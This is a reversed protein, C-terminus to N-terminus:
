ATFEAVAIALPDRIGATFYDRYGFKQGRREPDRQETWAGTGLSAGDGGVEGMAMYLPRKNAAYFVAIDDPMDPMFFYDVSDVRGVPFAQAFAGEEPIGERVMPTRSEIAGFESKLDARVDEAVNAGALARIAGNGPHETITDRIPKAIAQTWSAGQALFIHDHGTATESGDRLPWTISQSDNAYVAAVQDSNQTAIDQTITNGNQDEATWAFNNSPDDNADGFAGSTLVDMLIKAVKQNWGLRPRAAREAAQQLNMGSYRFDKPRVIHTRGAMEFGPPAVIHKEALDGERAREDPGIARADENADYFAWRKTHREEWPGVNDAVQSLINPAAQEFVRAPNMDLRQQVRDHVEVWQTYNRIKLFEGETM